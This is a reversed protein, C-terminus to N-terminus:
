PTLQVIEPEKIETNESADDTTMQEAKKNSKRRPLKFTKDFQNSYKSSIGTVFTKGLYM